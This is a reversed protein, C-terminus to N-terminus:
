RYREALWTQAKAVAEPPFCQPNNVIIRTFQEWQGMFVEANRRNANIAETQAGMSQDGVPVTVTVPVRVQGYPRAAAMVQECSDPAAVPETARYAWRVLLM